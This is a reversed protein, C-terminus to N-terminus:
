RGIVNINLTGKSIQNIIQTEMPASTTYNTQAPSTINLNPPPLIQQTTQAPNVTNVQALQIPASNNQLTPENRIVNVVTALSTSEKAVVPAMQQLEVM